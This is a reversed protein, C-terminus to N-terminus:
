NVLRQVSFSLAQNAQIHIINVGEIMIRLESDEMIIKLCYLRQKAEIAHGSIQIYGVNKEQMLQQISLLNNDIM